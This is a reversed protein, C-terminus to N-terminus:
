IFRHARLDNERSKRSTKALKEFNECTTQLNRVQESRGPGVRIRKSASPHMQIPKSANPRTRFIRFFQDFFWTKKCNKHLKQPAVCFRVDGAVEECNKARSLSIQLETRGKSSMKAYPVTRPHGRRASNAPEPPGSRALKSILVLIIEIHCPKNKVPNQEVVNKECGYEWGM